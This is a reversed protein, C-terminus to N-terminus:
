VYMLREFTLDAVVYNAIFSSTIQLLKSNQLLLVQRLKYYNKTTIQLLKKGYNTIFSDYNTIFSGYNTSFKQWLKYHDQLLITM